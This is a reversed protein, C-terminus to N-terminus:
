RNKIWIERWEEPTLLEGGSGREMEIRRNGDRKLGCRGRGGGGRMSYKEGAYRGREGGGGREWRGNDPM